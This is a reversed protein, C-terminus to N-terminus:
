FCTWYCPEIQSYCSNNVEEFIIYNLTNLLLDVSFSGTSKDIERYIKRGKEESAFTDM